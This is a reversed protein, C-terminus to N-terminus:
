TPSPTTGTLGFTHLIVGFRVAPRGPAAGVRERVAAVRAHRSM